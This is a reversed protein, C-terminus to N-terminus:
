ECHNYEYRCALRRRACRVLIHHEVRAALENHGDRKYAERRRECGIRRAARTEEARRTNTCHLVGVRITCRASDPRASSPTPLSRRCSRGTRASRATPRRRSPRRPPRGAPARTPPARSASGRARRRARSSAGRRRRRRCASCVRRRTRAAPRRQM